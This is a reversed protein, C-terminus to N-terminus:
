SRTQHRSTTVRGRGSVPLQALPSTRHPSRSGPLDSQNGPRTTTPSQVRDRRKKQLHAIIARYAHAEPHRPNFREVLSLYEKAVDYQEFNIEYEAKLLLAGYHAASDELAKDLHQMGIKRDNPLFARALGFRIDPNDPAYKLAANFEDGALKFDSKELALEASALHAEVLGPPVKKGKAKKAKAPNYYNQFVLGPDAGLILAAKGMHVLEQATRNKEGSKKGAALNVKELVGKLEENRGTYHYLDHVEILAGLEEANTQLILEADEIAEEYRGLKALSKMHLVRWEWSRGREMAYETFQLLNEFGGKVFVVRAKPLNDEDFARKYDAQAHVRDTMCFFDASGWECFHDPQEPLTRNTAAVVYRGWYVPYVPM